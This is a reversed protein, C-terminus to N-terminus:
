IYVYIHIYMYIYIYIYICICICGCVYCGPGGVPGGAGGLGGRQLRYQLMIISTTVHRIVVIIHYVQLSLM